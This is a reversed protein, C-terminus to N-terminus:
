HKAWSWGTIRWGATGKYLAITLISGVERAAKGKVKYSYNAPGVVYARDGTVDVHAPKGLAVVPDAIGNTKADVDYDSAWRACTGPGQWAYPPFEDIIAAQEACTASMANVDGKNFADVFQRVVAMVDAKSTAPAQAAAPMPAAVVLAAALGFIRRDM